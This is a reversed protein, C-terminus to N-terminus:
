TLSTIEMSILQGKLMSTEIVVLDVRAESENVPWTVLYVVTFHDITHAVQPLLDRSARSM